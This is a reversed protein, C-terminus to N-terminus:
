TECKPFLIGIGSLYGMKLWQELVALAVEEEMIDECKYYSSDDERNITLSFTSTNEYLYQVTLSYM